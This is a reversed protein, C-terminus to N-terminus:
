YRARVSSRGFLPFDSPSKAKASRSRIQHSIFALIRSLIALALVFLSLVTPHNSLISLRTGAAERTVTRTALLKAKCM